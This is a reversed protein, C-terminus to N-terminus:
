VYISLEVDDDIEIARFSAMFINDITVRNTQESQLLTM